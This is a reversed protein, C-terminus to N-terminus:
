AEDRNWEQRWREVRRDEGAKQALTVVIPIFQFPLSAVSLGLGQLREFPGLGNCRFGLLSAWYNFIVGYIEVALLARTGHAGGGRTTGAKLREVFDAATRGPAETYAVGVHRLVHADSGGTTGLPAERRAAARQALRESLVNHGESMTANRIEVAHVLPLLQGLYRPVPVQGRFFHFPHHLVLAVGNARLFGAMEVVNSRLGQVERHLRETMGFAGVHLRLETGPLRCEIEEGVLIDDAGPHRDLLELCGDISDHDTITVLNMGRSRAARYIGEPRSYCDRSRFMSLAPTRNLGSHCSHVHLDVRITGAAAPERTM